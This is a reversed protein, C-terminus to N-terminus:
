KRKRKLARMAELASSTDEPPEPPPEVPTGHRVLATGSGVPQAPRAPAAAPKAAVKPSAAKGPTAPRTPAAKSPAPGAKSPAPRAPAPRAKPVLDDFSVEEQDEEQFADKLGFLDTLSLPAGCRPCSMGQGPRQAISEPDLMAKCASCRVHDFYSM